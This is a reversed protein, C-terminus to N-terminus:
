KRETEPLMGDEFSYGDDILTPLARDPDPRGLTVIEWATMCPLHLRYSKGQDQIEAEVQQSAIATGCISCIYGSGPGGWVIKPVRLPLSGCAIAALVQRRREDDTL